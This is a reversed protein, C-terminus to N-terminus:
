RYPGRDQDTYAVEVMEHPIHVRVVDALRRQAGHYAEDLPDVIRFRRALALADAYSPEAEVAEEVCRWLLSALRELPESGVRWEQAMVLAERATQSSKFSVRRAQELCSEVAGLVRDRDVGVHVAVLVLWDARPCESWAGIIDTGFSRIWDVSYPDAGAEDLIKWIPRLGDDRDLGLAQRIMDEVSRM